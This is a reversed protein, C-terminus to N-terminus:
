LPRGCGESSAETCPVSNTSFLMIDKLNKLYGSIFEYLITPMPITRFGAATKPFSMVEGKNGKFILNKNITVTRKKMDFDGKTLALIEGRRLGAYKGLYVFARQKDSLEAEIIAKNEIDTLTRKPKPKGTPKQLDEAPNIYILHNKVTAKFIQKLTM